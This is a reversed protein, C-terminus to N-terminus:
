SGGGPNAAVTLKARERVTHALREIEGARRIVTLSLTDQTTKDVEAKLGTAMKLLNEAQIAPQKKQEASAADLNQKGAQGDGANRQSDAGPAPIASAQAQAAPPSKLPQQGAVPALAALALAAFVCVWLVM